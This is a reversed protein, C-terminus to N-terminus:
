VEVPNWSRQMPFFGCYKETLGQPIKVIEKGNLEILGGGNILSVKTIIVPPHSINPVKPSQLKIHAFFIKISLAPLGFSKLSHKQM